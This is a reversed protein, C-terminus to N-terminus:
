RRGPRTSGEPRDAAAVVATLVQIAARVAAASAQVRQPSILAVRGDIKPVERALAKVLRGYAQGAEAGPRRARPRTVERVVAAPNEGARIRRVVDEQLAKPLLAVKGAAILTLAGRDVAAQIEPPATLLLLYRNVSRLSLGMRAAVEAKLKEKQRHGFARAPGGVALEMLCRPDGLFCREPQM